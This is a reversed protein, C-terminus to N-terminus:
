VTVEVPVTRGRRVVEAMTTEPDVETPVNVSVAAPAGAVGEAMVAPLEDEVEEEPEDTLTTETVVVMVVPVVVLTGGVVVAEANVEEVTRVLPVRVVVRTVVPVIVVATVGEEDLPAAVAVATVVVFLAPLLAAPM